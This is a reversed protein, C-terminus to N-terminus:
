FRGVLVMGGSSREAYPLLKVRSASSGSRRLGALGVIAVTIGGLYTLTTIAGTTYTFLSKFYCPNPNGCGGGMVVIPGALPIFWGWQGQSFAGYSAGGLVLNLVYSGGLAGLGGLAVKKWNSTGSSSSFSPPPEVTPPPSPPLALPVAGTAYPAYPAAGTAYPAAPAPAPMPRPGPAVPPAAVPPPMPTMAPPPVTTVMPPPAPPVPAAPLASGQSELTVRIGVGAGAPPAPAKPAADAPAADTSVAPLDTRPRKRSRKAMAAPPCLSDLLIVSCLLAVMGKNTM